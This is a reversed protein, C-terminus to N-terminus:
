RPPSQSGGGTVSARLQKFPYILMGWLHVTWARISNGAPPEFALDSVGTAPYVDYNKYQTGFIRDWISFMVGFNTNQHEPEISHHVRHSQPTVMFYKGWGLNTRINAHIFRTYWWKVSGVGIVAYTPLNFAFLPIFVLIDSIIYEAAHVRFDTFLNMQRQSHHIAHFHWFATVKHRVWHHFWQLFDFFLVAVVIALWLPWTDIFTFTWGGSIADYVVKLFGISAPILAVKLMADLNFWLFDQTFGRSFAAQTRDAPRLKEFILISSTFIWFWPNLYIEQAAWYYTKVQDPTIDRLWDVIEAPGLLM